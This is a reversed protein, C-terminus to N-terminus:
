YAELDQRWRGEPEAVAGSPDLHNVLHAPGAQSSRSDEWDLSAPQSRGAAGPVRRGRDSDQGDVAPSGDKSEHLLVCVQKSLPQQEHLGSCLQVDM